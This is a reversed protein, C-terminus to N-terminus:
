GTPFFSGGGADDGGCGIGGGYIYKKLFPTVYSQYIYLSNSPFIVTMNFVLYTEVTSLNLSMEAM